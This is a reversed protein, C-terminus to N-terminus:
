SRARSGPARERGRPRPRRTAPSREDLTARVASWGASMSARQAQTMPDLFLERVNAIHARKAARLRARGTRTIAAHFM